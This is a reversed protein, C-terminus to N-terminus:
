DGARPNVAAASPTSITAPRGALPRRQDAAGEDAGPQQHLGLRQQFFEQMLALTGSVDAAAMSTGSEYRYYPGLSDNM